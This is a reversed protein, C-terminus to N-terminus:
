LSTTHWEITNEVGKELDYKPEWGLISKAKANSLVSIKVDGAREPKYVPDNEYGTKRKM